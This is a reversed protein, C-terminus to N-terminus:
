HWQTHLESIPVHMTSSPPFCAACLFVLSFVNKKTLDGGFSMKYEHKPSIDYSEFCFFIEFFHGFM